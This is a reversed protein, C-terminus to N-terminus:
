KRIQILSYYTSVVAYNLLKITLQGSGGIEKNEILHATPYYKKILQVSKDTSANDVVFIEYDCGQSYVIPDICRGILDATNFSIIIISLDKM